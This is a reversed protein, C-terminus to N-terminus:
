ILAFTYCCLDIYPKFSIYTHEQQRGARNELGVRFMSITKPSFIGLISVKVYKTVIEM